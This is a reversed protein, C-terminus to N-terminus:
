KEPEGGRAAREPDFTLLLAWATYVAFAGALIIWFPSGGVAEFATWGCCLLVVLIRRWLPVFFPHNVDFAKM